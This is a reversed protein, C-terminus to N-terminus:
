SIPDGWPQPQDKFNKLLEFGIRRPEEDTAKPVAMLLVSVQSYHQILEFKRGDAYEGIFLIMDPGWSALNTIHLPESGPGEVFRGGVEFGAGLGKEFEIIQHVLREHMWQAPNTPPQAAPVAAKAGGEVVEGKVHYPPSATAHLAGGNDPTAEDQTQKQEAV